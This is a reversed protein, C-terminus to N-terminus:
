FIIDIFFICPARVTCGAGRRVLTAGGPVVPWGFFNHSPHLTAPFGLCCAGMSRATGVQTMGMCIAELLATVVASPLSQGLQSWSELM